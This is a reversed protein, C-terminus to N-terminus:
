LQLRTAAIFYFNFSRWIQYNHLDTVQDTYFNVYEWFDGTQNRKSPTCPLIRSFCKVTLLVPKKFRKSGSSIIREWLPKSISFSIALISCERLIGADVQSQQCSAGFNM